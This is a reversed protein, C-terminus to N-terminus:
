SGLSMRFHFITSRSVALAAGILGMTIFVVFCIAWDQFLRSAMFTGGRVNALWVASSLAFVFALALVILYNYQMIYIYLIISLLSERCLFFLFCFVACITIIYQLGLVKERNLFSLDMQLVVGEEDVTLTRHETDHSPFARFLSLRLM